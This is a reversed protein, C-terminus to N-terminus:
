HNRLLKTRSCARCASHLLLMIVTRDALFSGPPITPYIMLSLQGRIHIDSCHKERKSCKLNTKKFNIRFYARESEKATSGGKATLQMHKYSQNMLMRVLWDQVSSQGNTWRTRRSRWRMLPRHKFVKVYYLFHIIKLLWKM